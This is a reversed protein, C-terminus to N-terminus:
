YSLTFEYQSPTMAVSSAVPMDLRSAVHCGEPIWIADEMYGMMCITATLALEGIGGTLDQGSSQPCLHTASRFGIGPALPFM